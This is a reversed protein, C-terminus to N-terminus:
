GDILERMRASVRPADAVYLAELEPWAAALKAWPGPYVAAVESLRAVGDPILALVRRCRGFDDADRPHFGLLQRHIMADCYDALEPVLVSVITIASLGRHAALVLLLKTHTTAKGVSPTTNPTETINPAQNM